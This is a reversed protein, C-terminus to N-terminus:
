DFHNWHLLLCNLKGDDETTVMRGTEEYRLRIVIMAYTGNKFSSTPAQEVQRGM